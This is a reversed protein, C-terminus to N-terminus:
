ELYKKIDVRGHMTYQQWYTTKESTENLKSIAEKMSYGKSLGRALTGAIIPTAMSTGSILAWRAKPVTSYIKNGPAAISILNAGYNSFDSLTEENNEYTVSAVGVMNKHNKLSLPLIPNELNAQDLNKKENGAAAVFIVGHDDAYTIAEDLMEVAEVTVFQEWSNYIRWSNSLVKAGNDTAYKVARAAASLQGAYNSNIILLPMIKANPAVGQAHSEPDVDAAILGACHTGHGFPDQIETNNDEFNYGDYDDILGNGDDDIGNNPIEKKNKWMKKALAYHTYDVGGDLVAVIIGQGTFKKNLESYKLFDVHWANPIKAPPPEEEVKDMTIAVDAFASDAQFLNALTQASMRTGTKFDLVLYQNKLNLISHSNLDRLAELNIMQKPNKIIWHEAQASLTIFLVVFMAFLKIM